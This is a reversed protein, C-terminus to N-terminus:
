KKVNFTGIAQEILSTHHNGESIGVSSLIPDRPKEELM